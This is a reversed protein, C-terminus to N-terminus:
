SVKKKLVIHGNGDMKNFGFSDWGDYYRSIATDIRVTHVMPLTLLKEAVTRVCQETNEGGLVIETAENIEFGFQKLRELIIGIPPKRDRGVNDVLRVNQKFPSAKRVRHYLDTWRETPLKTTDLLKHYRIIRHLTIRDIPSPIDPMILLAENRGKPTLRNIRGESYMAKTDEIYSKGRDNDLNGDIHWLPHVLIYLKTLPTPNLADVLRPGPREM